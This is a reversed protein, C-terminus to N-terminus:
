FAIKMVKKININTNLAACTKSASPNVLRKTNTKLTLFLFLSSKPTGKGGWKLFLFIFFFNELFIETISYFGPSIFILRLTFSIYRIVCM